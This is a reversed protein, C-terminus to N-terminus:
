KKIIELDELMKKIQQKQSYNVNRNANLEAVSRSWRGSAIMKVFRKLEYYPQLYRKGELNPFDWCLKEYPLWLRTIISKFKSKTKIESVLAWNDITGYVGASLLYNQMQQTLSTHKKGDFWVESLDRCAKEFASLNCENLIQKRKEEDANVRNNLIYLDVFFRMGCGGTEFHHKMHEIHYAYFIEDPMIYKQGDCTSYNWLYDPTFYKISVDKILAFHLEIHMNGDRYFSVDKKERSKVTYRCKNVLIDRAREFDTEKILIDADSSTRMWPEPYMDCMVAGKLPMYPIKENEFLIEIESVASERILYRYIASDAYMKFTKKQEDSYGTKGLLVYGALHALDQRAAFKFLKDIDESSLGNLIQNPKNCIIEGIVATMLNLETM